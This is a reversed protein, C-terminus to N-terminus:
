DVTVQDEIEKMMDPTMRKFGKVSTLDDTSKFEGHNKRYAVIARAKAASLGKVKMLERASAKNLNVKLSTTPAMETSMTTQQDGTNQTTTTTTTTSSDPPPETMSSLPTNDAFVPCAIVLATLTALLSRSLFM